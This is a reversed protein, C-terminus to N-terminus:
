ASVSDDETDGDDLLDTSVPTGRRSKGNRSKGKAENSAELARKRLRASSRTGTTGQSQIVMKPPAPTPTRLRSKGKARAKRVVRRPPKKKAPKKRSNRKKPPPAVVEEVDSMAQPDVGVLLEQYELLTLQEEELADPSRPEFDSADSEPLEPEREDKSMDFEKLDFEGIEFNTLYEYCLDAGM